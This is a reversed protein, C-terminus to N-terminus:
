KRNSKLCLLSITLRHDLKQGLKKRGPKSKWLNEMIFVNWEKCVLRCAKIETPDLLLFCDILFKHAGEDLLLLERVIWIEEEPDM